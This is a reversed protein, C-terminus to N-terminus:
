HQLALEMKVRESTFRKTLFYFDSALVSFLPVSSIELCKVWCRSGLTAHQRLSPKWEESALYLIPFDCNARDKETIVEYMGFGLSVEASLGSAEIESDM